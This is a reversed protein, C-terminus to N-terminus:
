RTARVGQSRAKELQWGLGRSIEGACVGSSINSERWNLPFLLVLVGAVFAPGLDHITQDRMVLAAIMAALAVIAGLLITPEVRETFAARLAAKRVPERSLPHMHALTQSVKWNRLGTAAIGDTTLMREIADLDKRREPTRLKRASSCLLRETLRLTLVAGLGAVAAAPILVDSLLSILTELEGAPADDAGAESQQTTTLNWSLMRMILILVAGLFVVPGTVLLRDYPSIAEDAITVEPLQDGTRSDEVWGSLQIRRRLSRASEGFPERQLQTILVPFDILRGRGKFAETVESLTQKTLQIEGREVAGFWSEERLTDTALGDLSTKLESRKEAILAGLLATTTADLPWRVGPTSTPETTTM